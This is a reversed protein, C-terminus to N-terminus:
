LALSTQTNLSLLPLLSPSSPSFRSVTRKAGLNSTERRRKMTAATELHTQIFLVNRRLVYLTPKPKPYSSTNTKSLLVWAPGSLVTLYSCSLIERLWACVKMEPETCGVFRFTLSAGEMTGKRTKREDDYTIQWSDASPITLLRALPFRCLALQEKLQGECFRGISSRLQTPVM